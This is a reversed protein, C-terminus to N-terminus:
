RRTIAKIKLELRYLRRKKQHITHKQKRYSRVKKTFNKKGNMQLLKEHAKEKQEM